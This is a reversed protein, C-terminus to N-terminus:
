SKNPGIWNPPNMVIGEGKFGVKDELNYFNYKAGIKGPDWQKFHSSKSSAYMDFHGGYDWKKRKRRREIAVYGDSKMIMYNSEVGKSIFTAIKSVGIGAVKEEFEGTLVKSFRMQKHGIPLVYNDHIYVLGDAVDIVIPPIDNYHAWSNGLKKVEVNKNHGITEENYLMNTMLCSVLVVYIMDNDPGRFTIKDELDFTMVLQHSSIGDLDCLQKEKFDVDNSYGVFIANDRTLDCIPSIQMKEVEGNVVVDNITSNVQKVVSGKTVRTKHQIEWCFITYQILEELILCVKQSMAGVLLDDDVGFLHPWVIRIEITGCHLSDLTGYDSALLLQPTYVILILVWHIFFSPFDIWVEVGHYLSGLSSLIGLVTEMIHNDLKPGSMTFCDLVLSSSQFLNIITEMEQFLIIGDFVAERRADMQEWRHKRAIRLDEAM